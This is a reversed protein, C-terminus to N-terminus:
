SRSVGKSPQNIRRELGVVKEMVVSFEPVEGFIMDAMAQYDRKLVVQMESTPAIAFSGPRASGLDLDTSNFFMQAHRVCDVALGPDNLAHQGFESQLLQYIDYYHRSIRHGQQRLQGRHDYWRRLGHLIVVKDWFTREADITVVNDIALNTNAMEHAVYPEVRALHHPDLASKAGAEIKITPRLYDNAKHAVAPYSILLTQQDPDDPDSTVADQSLPVQAEEFAEKIQQNLREKLPGQIYAQCAAKITNLRIRQQKGSLNELDAVEINLGLDERFVTIDIDESFRAILGYAKSLSTGGKFLLRPETDDRNNFLLDLVWCVWFDKEVNQLPTGLRNATALFLDRRDNTSAAIIPLFERNM